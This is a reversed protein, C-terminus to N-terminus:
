STRDFAVYKKKGPQVQYAIGLVAVMPMREKSGFDLVNAIM